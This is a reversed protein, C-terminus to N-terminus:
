HAASSNAQSIGLQKVTIGDIWATGEIKNDLKNSKERRIAITVARCDAPADFDVSLEQWFSTGTVVGSRENLGSCNHGSVSLFIGNTTTLMDTRVYGKLTYKTAPKIRIVQKAVTVDPNHAGDFSVGLSRNGSMRISNDFFVRVGETEGIRWGFGGNLIEQEFGPNWVLSSDDSKDTGEIRGTVERWTAWAEDYFGDAILFNVYRIFLDKDLKDLNITKWLELAEPAHDSGILYSLYASRYAYSNPLLNQLIYDNGLHLRWCLDYVTDQGTPALLIYRRLAEAARDPRNNILWYTGAEWMLDPNYPSLKVARELSYESEKTQGIARYTKSLDVWVGAQLPSSRIAERYHRIAKEADPSLLNTHYYSGLLYHYASNNSDFRLAALLGQEDAKGLSLRGLFSKSLLWILVIYVLVAAFSFFLSSFAQKPITRENTM